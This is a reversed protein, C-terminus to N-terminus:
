ARRFSLWGRPQAAFVEAELDKNLMEELRSVFPSTRKLQWAPRGHNHSSSILADDAPLVHDVQRGIAKGFQAVSLEGSEMLSANHKNIVIKLPIQTLDEDRFLDFLRNLRHVAPVSLESVLYVTSAARLVVETWPSLAVPLDVVVYHYSRKALKLVEGVVRSDFSELPLPARPATLVRLGSAHRLMMNELMERDLRTPDDFLNEVPSTTPLDLLSACTGFQIDFDLLGTRLTTVTEALACATNVALTSAGAGGSVHMFVLTRAGAGKGREDIKIHRVRGFVDRAEDHEIPKLLVDDAGARIARLAALDTARDTLAIVSVGIPAAKKLERVQDLDEPNSVDVDLLLATPTSGDPMLLNFKESKHGIIQVTVEALPKLAYLVEARTAESHILALVKLEHVDYQPASPSAAFSKAPALPETPGTMGPDLKRNRKKTM